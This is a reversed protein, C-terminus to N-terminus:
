IQPVVILWLAIALVSMVLVVLFGRSTGGTARGLIAGLVGLVLAIVGLVGGVVLWDTSVRIAGVMGILLGALGLFLGFQVLRNPNPKQEVAHHHEAHDAM